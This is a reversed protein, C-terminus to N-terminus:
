ETQVPPNREAREHWRRGYILKDFRLAIWRVWPNLPICRRVLNHFWNDKHSFPCVAMCIGCDTGAARWFRYCQGVRTPWKEVDRICSKGKTTLAGSPCNEACKKCIECFAQVGLYRPLDPSVPMTTSVAGIRVRSGFRDAVLINNRGLEGLGAAVALPPLILDYHADYHAKADYGLRQIVTEATRAIKATRYYQRASERFVPARPAKQMTEFDMEVLFVIVHQHHLTIPNGYEEDFRGKHSYIYSEHIDTCGAAVAGLDLMMTKIADSSDDAAKIIDALREVETEDVSINEIRAFWAGAEATVEEDYHLGGPQELPPMSRLLDDLEKLLLRRAYFDEYQPTGPIRAARSFMVDREDFRSDPVSTHRKRRIMDLPLFLGIIGVTLLLWIGM